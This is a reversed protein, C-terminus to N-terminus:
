TLWAILGALRNGRAVPKALANRILADLGLWRGTPLLATVLSLVLITNYAWEWEYPNSIGSLGVWLQASIGVAVLGGLRSLLGFVLSVFIFAEAGWILYGFWRINPQVVTTIFAANAQALPQIDVQIEAPGQNDINAVFLPRPREAWVQEIGIWDCLGATRELNRPATGTTFAFDPPCGFTPPTKWWLQTFFLYGLALRAILLGLNKLTDELRNAPLPDRSSM